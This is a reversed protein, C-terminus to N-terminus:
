YFRDSGLIDEEDEELIIKNRIAHTVAEVNSLSPVPRFPDGRAARPPLAFSTEQVPHRHYESSPGTYSHTHRLSHPRAQPYSQPQHRLPYLERRSRPQSFSTTHALSSSSYLWQGSSHPQPQPHLPNGTHTLPPIFPRMPVQSLPLPKPKPRPQPLPLPLPQQLPLPQPQPKHIM